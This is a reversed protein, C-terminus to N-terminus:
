STETEMFVSCWSYISVVEIKAITEITSSYLANGKRKEKNFSNNSFNISLCKGLFYKTSIQSIRM